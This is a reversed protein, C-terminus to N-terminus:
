EIFQYNKGHGFYRIITETKSKIQCFCERGLLQNISLVFMPVNVLVFM